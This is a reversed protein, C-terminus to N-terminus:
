AVPEEDDEALARQRRARAEALRQELEHRASVVGRRPREVPAAGDVREGPTGPAEIEEEEEEEDEDDRADALSRHVRDEPSLTERLDELASDAADRLKGLKRGVARRTRDGSQPAFLLALGAGLTGGVLFWWLSSGGSREIVIRRTSERRAM